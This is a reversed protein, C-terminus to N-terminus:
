NLVDRRCGRQRDFNLAVVTLPPMQHVSEEDHDVAQSGCAALSPNRLPQITSARNASGGSTSRVRDQLARWNPAAM